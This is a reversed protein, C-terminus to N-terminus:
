IDIQSTVSVSGEGVRAGSRTDIVETTGLTNGYIDLAYVQAFAIQGAPIATEFDTRRRTPGRLLSSPSSGM